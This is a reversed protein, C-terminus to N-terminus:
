MEYERSSLNYVLAPGETEIIRAQSNRGLCATRWLEAFFVRATLDVKGPFIKNVNCLEKTITYCDWSLFDSM